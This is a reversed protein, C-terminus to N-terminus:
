YQFKCIFIGFITRGWNRQYKIELQNTQCTEKFMLLQARVWGTDCFSDSFNFFFCICGSKRSITGQYEPYAGRELLRESKVAKMTKKIVQHPGCEIMIITKQYSIPSRSIQKLCNKVQQYWDSHENPTKVHTHHLYISCKRNTWM